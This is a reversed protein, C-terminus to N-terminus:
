SKAERFGCSQSRPAIRGSGDLDFFRQDCYSLRGQAQGHGAVLSRTSAEPGAPTVPPDAVGVLWAPVAKLRGRGPRASFAAWALRSEGPSGSTREGGLAFKRTASGGSLNAAQPWEAPAPAQQRWTRRIGRVVAPNRFLHNSAGSFSGLEWERDVRVHEPVGRTVLEGVIPM